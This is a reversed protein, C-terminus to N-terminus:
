GHMDELLETVEMQRADVPAPKSGQLRLDADALNIWTRLAEARSM